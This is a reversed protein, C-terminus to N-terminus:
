TPIRDNFRQLLWLAAGAGALPVLAAPLQSAEVALSSLGTGAAQGIGISAVLWAAAETSEGAPALREVSLFAAALLPALFSGPLVAGLVAVAPGPDPLLALWGAAFGTAALVLHRAPPGPWARRSYALGGLVSGVSLAAPMVGALWGAHHRDGVAIALVNMSGLAVGTGALAAFLVRLGPVRLPGAWHRRGASATPTWWASPPTTIVLGTGLMGLAATAASAAVAGAGITTGVALLPGVVFVLGQTRSDM